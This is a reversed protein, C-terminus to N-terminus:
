WARPSSWASRIPCRIQQWRLLAEAGVIEGRELHVVPQYYLRLEERDIAQRLQSEMSLRHRAQDALTPTYIRCDGGGAEKAEDLATAAKLILGEADEGHSPFVAV